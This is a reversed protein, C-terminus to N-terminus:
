LDVNAGARIAFKSEAKSLNGTFKFDASLDAALSCIALTAILAIVARM